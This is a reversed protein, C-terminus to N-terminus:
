ALPWSYNQWFNSYNLSWVVSSKIKKCAFFYIEPFNTNEKFSFHILALHVQLQSIKYEHYKTFVSFWSLM